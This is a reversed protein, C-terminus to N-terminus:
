RRGCRQGQPGCAANHMHSGVMKGQMPLQHSAARLGMRDAEAELGHDQVVAVGSGFPNRVRGSRQQVVHTLEHGLIAQGQPTAPNYQGPAFHIHSGQTFALAGIASAQPGVHVRVDSFSTGFFSEMKQRVNPPLPEGGMTTFNALNSPLEIANAPGHPQAVHAGPKPAANGRAMVRQRVAAITNFGHPFHGQIVSARM